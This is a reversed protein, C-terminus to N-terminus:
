AAAIREGLSRAERRISRREAADLRDLNRWQMGARPHDRFRDEHRMLFDWYLQTYPCADPGTRQAPDYRCHTCYNSMRQIYKGSAAYPKSAMLGGDAFQSMGLTNPLEVWEVADVYVALYWAHVQRPQVGLLLAFLGTVMLRQIHHAYGYDLTQGISEALCRMDTEGTWYFRPLYAEAGLANDSLYQPMHSWYLGRVFERWGMVQRVFGEVSALPALGNQYAQVAADIVRRPDLLKLNLAAALASHYLFPEGTWLADQYPGFTALRHRVFDDLAFEADEATVPWDFQALSGPHDPYRREVLELVARTIADPAFAPPRPLLGPGTRPFTRRNEKDFNWAGGEPQDDRMLVGSQKRLQRYFQELRPQRRGGMWHAFADLGFLFHRDERLEMPVQAAQATTQLSELVRHDGPQVLVLREPRQGALTAALAQALSAHRHDDLAHYDVQWRRARLTEAFHRMASLFLAIRAKHSWVHTSEEAVEAMWIRDRGPDLDDFASSAADLQDGLVIILNRLSM